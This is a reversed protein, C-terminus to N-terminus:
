PDTINPFGCMFLVSTQRLREALDIDFTFVIWFSIQKIHTCYTLERM